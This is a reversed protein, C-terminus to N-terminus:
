EGKKTIINWSIRTSKEETPVPAMEPLSQGEPFPLVLLPARGRPHNQAKPCSGFCITIPALFKASEYNLALDSRINALIKFRRSAPKVRKTAITLADEANKVEKSVLIKHIEVEDMDFHTFLVESIGGLAGNEIYPAVAQIQRIATIDLSELQQAPYSSFQKFGITTGEEVTPLSTLAQASEYEQAMSKSLLALMKSGNGQTHNEATAYAISLKKYEPFQNWEAQKTYKPIEFGINVLNDDLLNNGAAFYPSIKSIQEDPTFSPNRSDDQGISGFFGGVLLLLSLLLKKM